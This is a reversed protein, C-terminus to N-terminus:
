GLYADRSKRWCSVQIRNQVFPKTSDDRLRLDKMSRHPHRLLRMMRPYRQPRNNRDLRLVLFSEETM